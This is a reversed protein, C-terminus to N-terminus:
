KALFSFTEKIVTFNVERCILWKCWSIPAFLFNIFAWFPDGHIKFGVMATALCFIFKLVGLIMMM